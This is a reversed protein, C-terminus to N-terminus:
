EGFYKEAFEELIGFRYLFDIVTIRSRMFPICFLTERFHERSVGIMECEYPAGVKKLSDYVQDYPIIQKRIRSCLESWNEKIVSIERCIESKDVYKARTEQLARSLHGPKGAMLRNIYAVTDDWSLWAGACKEPDIRSIDYNVFFELAATSILTGIGVKFGHSVHKGGISLNEMDWFHSFQHEMGSAPRSSMLSQMAFGSMILGEALAQTMEVDGEHVAQPDSLAYKLGDQVLDWSFSDIAESGIADALIWDAGAPVKAMLDAYGSAALEKPAEASIVPDLLLGLPAPCDVTQKNGDFSISSGYATYGDMSVATGICIYRRGNLHSAYKTLDNIVGSGVAVPVADTQALAASLRELYAQEAYLDPDSFIFPADTSVGGEELCRQAEEGAARWTNTDAVVIARRGPFLSKFMDAVQKVAGKCLVLQRTDRTRMLANEIKGM